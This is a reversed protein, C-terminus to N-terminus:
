SKAPSYPVLLNESFAKVAEVGRVEKELLPLKVVHFDQLTFFTEEETLRTM